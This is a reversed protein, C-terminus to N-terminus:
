KSKIYEYHTQGDTDPTATLTLEYGAVEDDKYTIDGVETIKAQPIVVRKLAGNMIMDIVWSSAEMADTNAKVTLGAALTGSVNDEGYVAKLVEPNLVEILKFGFTDEKSTQMTYVTDGGWATVSDSEPSNTNILGDDSCYGLSAFAADLEADVSTPLTTGVPARFIAGGIKPKGVAVNKVDSM